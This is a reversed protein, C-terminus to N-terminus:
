ADLCRKETTVKINQHQKKPLLHDAEDALELTAIKRGLPVVQRSVAYYVMREVTKHCVQLNDCM